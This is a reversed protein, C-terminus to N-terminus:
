SNSSQFIVDICLSQRKAERALLNMKNKQLPCRLDCSSLYFPCDRLSSLRFNEQASARCSKEGDDHVPQGEAAQEEHSEQVWEQGKGGRVSPLLSRLKWTLRSHKDTRPPVWSSSPSEPYFPEETLMAISQLSCCPARVTHRLDLLPYPTRSVCAPLM